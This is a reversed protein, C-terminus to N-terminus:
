QDSLTATQRHNQVCGSRARQLQLCLGSTRQAVQRNILCVLFHERFQVGHWRKLPKSARGVLANGLLHNAAFRRCGWRVRQGGGWMEKNPGKRTEM